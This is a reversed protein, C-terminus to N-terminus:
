SIGILGRKLYELRCKECARYLEGRCLVWLGEKGDYVIPPESSPRAREAAAVQYGQSLPLKVRMSHDVM